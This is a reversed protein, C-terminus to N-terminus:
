GATLGGLVGQALIFQYFEKCLSTMMVSFIYLLAGPWLVKAGFRDFLPGGFLSGSFLFFVQLSGIWAIQSATHDALMHTQYYEQYVSILTLFSSQTVQYAKGLLM